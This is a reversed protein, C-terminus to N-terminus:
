LNIFKFLRENQASQKQSKNCLQMMRRMAQEQAPTYPECAADAIADCLGIEQAEAATLWTADDLLEILRAETLKDGAKALYVQRNGEMMKDLTDAERRLDAANGWVCMEMNHIFMMANSYMIVEDCACCIVSAISAAIGDVYAVKHAPHRKLQAYIGYGEKVDGGNSNVYLNIRKADPHGDLLERFHEASGEDFREGTWWDTYAPEVDSYLYINLVGDAAQKFEYRLRMGM